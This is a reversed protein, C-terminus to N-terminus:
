FHPKLDWNQWKNGTHGRTAGKVERLRMTGMWLAPYHAWLCYYYNNDSNSSTWM